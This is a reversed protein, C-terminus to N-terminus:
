IYPSPYKSIPVIVKTGVIKLVTTEYTKGKTEYKVDMGEKFVYKAQASQGGNLKFYLMAMQMIAIPNMDSSRLDSIRPLGMTWM